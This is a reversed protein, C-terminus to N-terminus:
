HFHSLAVSSSTPSNIGILEEVAWVLKRDRYGKIWLESQRMTQPWAFSKDDEKLHLDHTLWERDRKKQGFKLEFIALGVQMNGLGRSNPPSRTCRSTQHDIGVLKPIELSVNGVRTRPKPSPKQTTISYQNNNYTQITHELHYYIIISPTNSSPIPPHAHCRYNKTSPHEIARLFDRTCM